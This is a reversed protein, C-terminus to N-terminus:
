WNVVSKNFIDESLQKIIIEILPGQVTNLAQSSNYDQFRSFTTEFNQKENTRNTFKVAVSITMRNLGATENGQIAVPLITYGTISGEITLDGGREVLSLNTNSTFYDRLGETFDRSLTPVVTLAKNPFNAITMTKVEPSISAGTFSYNVKCATIFLLIFVTVIFTKKM